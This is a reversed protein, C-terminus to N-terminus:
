APTSLVRTSSAVCCRDQVEHLITLPMFHHLVERSIALLRLHDLFEQRMSLTTNKTGKKHSQVSDGVTDRHCVKGLACPM